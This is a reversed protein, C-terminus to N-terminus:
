YGAEKMAQHWAEFDKCLVDYRQKDQANIKDLHGPDDVTGHQLVWDNSVSIFAPWLISDARWHATRADSPTTAAIGLVCFILILVYRM